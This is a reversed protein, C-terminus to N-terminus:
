LRFPNLTGDAYPLPASMSAGSPNASLNRKSPAASAGERLFPNLTGDGIDGGRWVPRLNEGKPGKPGGSKGGKKTSFPNLTADKLYAYAISIERCEAESAGSLEKVAESIQRLIEERYPTQPNEEM